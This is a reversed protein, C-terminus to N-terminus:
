TNANITIPRVPLPKDKGGLISVTDLADIKSQLSKAEQVFQRVGDMFRMDPVGWRNLLNNIQHNWMDKNSMFLVRQILTENFKSLFKRPTRLVEDNDIRVILFKHNRMIREDRNWDRSLQGNHIGGDIEFAMDAGHVFIDLYYRKKPLGDKAKLKVTKDTEIKLKDGYISKIYLVAATHAPTM